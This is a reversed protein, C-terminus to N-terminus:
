FIGVIRVSIQYWNQFLFSESFIHWSASFLCSSIRIRTSASFARRWSFSSRSAWIPRSFRIESQFITIVWCISNSWCLRFSSCSILRWTNFIFKWSKWKRLQYLFFINSSKIETNHNSWLPNSLFFDQQALFIAACVSM